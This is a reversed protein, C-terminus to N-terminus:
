ITDCIASCVLNSPASFKTLRSEFTAALGNRSQACRETRAGALANRASKKVAPVDFEIGFGTPRGDFRFLRLSGHLNKNEEISEM